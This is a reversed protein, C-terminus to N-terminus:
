AADRGNAWDLLGDDPQTLDVGHGRWYREFDTLYVGIAFDDGETSVFNDVIYKMRGPDHGYLKVLEPWVFGFNEDDRILIPVAWKWKAARHVSNKTDQSGIGSNAVETNWLWQLGRCRASKGRTDSITVKVGAALETENILHIAKAKATISGLYITEPKM